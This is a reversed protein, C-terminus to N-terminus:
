TTSLQCHFISLQCNYVTRFKNASFRGLKLFNIRCKTSLTRWLFSNVFDKCSKDPSILTEIELTSIFLSMVKPIMVLFNHFLKKTIIDLIKVLNKM